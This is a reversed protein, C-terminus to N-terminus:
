EAQSQVKTKSVTQHWQQPLTPAPGALKVAGTQEPAALLASAILVLSQKM